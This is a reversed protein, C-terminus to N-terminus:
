QIKRIKMGDAVFLSFGDTVIGMPRYFRAETGVGDAGGHTGPTGALTTVEKTAIVVKRITNNGDNVYLNTGDTTIDNISGFRANTGVGDATGSTEAVGALITMVGTAIAVKRIAFDNSVYLNTGDTTISYLTASSSSLTAFTTVAGTSISVKRIKTDDVVYLNIGDTTIAHVSTFGALTTVAGTAIVIKRIRSGETVYLSTGDSTIHVPYIFRAEAGVGDAYGEHGLMGAITTVKGTAVEVKRIAHGTLDAVYLDTGDFTIGAALSFRANRAVGDSLPLDLWYTYAKGSGLVMRRIAGNNYDTIYMEYGDIVIGTPGSFSAAYGVEDASGAVGAIGAVTTVEGTALVIKRITNNGRDAVYLDNGELVIDAPQNFRAANGKGDASGSVYSTAGAITTMIGTSLALKRVNGFGADTFYLNQGDNTIGWPTEFVGGSDRVVTTVTRTAIDLKRIAHNGSDTIYLSGGILTIDSPNLFDANRGVGDRLGAGDGNGALTTVTRTAIDVRRISQNCTDAVYLSSGDSAIGNPRCFLAEEGVGDVPDGTRIPDYNGGVFLTAKGSYIDIKRIAYETSVYFNQGVRVMGSVGKFESSGLPMGALTTVVTAINLEKGQVAGGMLYSAPLSSSRSSLSSTSSPRLSSISSKSGPLSSSSRPLSSLSSNPKSSSTFSSVSSKSSSSNTSWSKEIKFWNINFGGSSATIGFNRTGAPLTITHTISVWNQGGGTAPISVSDYVTGGTEKSEKFKFGGSGAVRYTIQYVGTTPINVVTGLYSLWDNTNINTVNFGGGTDTTVEQTTGGQSTYAEAQILTILTSPISSSSAAFSISAATILFASVLYRYFKIFTM